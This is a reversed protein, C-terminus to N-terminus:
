AEAEADAHGGQLGDAILADLDEARILRRTRLRVFPLSGDDMARYVSSRSLSLMAAADDITYLRRAATAM